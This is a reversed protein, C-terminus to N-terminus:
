KKSVEPSSTGGPQTESYLVTVALAHPLNNTKLCGHHFTQTTVRTRTYKRPGLAGNDVPCVITHTNSINANKSCYFPLEPVVIISFNNTPFLFDRYVLILYHAFAFRLRFTLSLKTPTTLQHNWIVRRRNIMTIIGNDKILAIIRDKCPLIRILHGLHRRNRWNKSRKTVTVVIRNDRDVYRTTKTPWIVVRRVTTKPSWHNQIASM